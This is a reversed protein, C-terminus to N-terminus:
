LHKSCHTLWFQRSENV